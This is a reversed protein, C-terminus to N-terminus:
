DRAGRTLLRDAPPTRNAANTFRGTRIFSLVEPWVLAFREYLENHNVPVFLCDDYRQAFADCAFHLPGYELATQEHRRVFRTPTTEVLLAVRANTATTPPYPTKAIDFIPSGYRIWALVPLKETAIRPAREQFPSRDYVVTALNSLADTDLLPNITWAGAIFAFVHVRQYQDLRQERIFQDLKRRSEDIGSRSIYKPAYLDFGEAAMQGALSRFVKEGANGYGFGPLVLLADSKPRSPSLSPKITGACGTLCACTLLIALRVAASRVQM